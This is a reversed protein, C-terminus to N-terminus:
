FCFKDTFVTVVTRNRIRDKYLVVWVDAYQEAYFIDTDTIFTLRFRSSKVHLLAQYYTIDTHAKSM